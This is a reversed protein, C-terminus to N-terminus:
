AQVLQHNGSSIATHGNSVTLLVDGYQIGATLSISPFNNALMNSLMDGTYTCTLPVGAQTFASIVFSSCDYDPGWRNTQDYGHSADNAISVAWNIAKQIVRM